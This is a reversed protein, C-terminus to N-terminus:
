GTTGKNKEVGEVSKEIGYEKMEKTIKFEKAMREKEGM